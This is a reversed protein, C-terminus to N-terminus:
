LSQTFVQYRVSPQLPGLLVMSPIAILDTCMGTSAAGADDKLDHWVREIANLETWSPPLWVCRVHELCRLRRATLAGSLDLLVINLRNAFAQVFAHLVLQFTDANM